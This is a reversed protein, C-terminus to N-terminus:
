SQVEKFEYEFLILLGRENDKQENLFRQAFIHGTQLMLKEETIIGSVEEDLYVFVQIMDEKRNIKKIPFNKQIGSINIVAHSLQNKLMTLFWDIGQNHM